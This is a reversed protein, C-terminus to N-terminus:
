LFPSLACYLLTSTIRDVVTVSPDSQHLKPDQLNANWLGIVTRPQADQKNLKM